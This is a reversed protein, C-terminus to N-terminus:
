SRKGDNKMQEKIYPIRKLTCCNGCTYIVKRGTLRVTCNVGPMLPLGCGKCYKFDRPIKVRTKRSIRRALDM